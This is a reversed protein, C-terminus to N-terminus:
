ELEEMKCIIDEYSVTLWECRDCCKTMMDCDGCCIDRDVPCKAEEDDTHESCYYEGSDIEQKRLKCEGKMEDIIKRRMNVIGYAERISKLHDRMDKAGWSDLLGINISRYKEDFMTEENAEVWQWLHRWGCFHYEDRESPGLLANVPGYRLQVHYKFKAFDELVEIGCIDCAYHATEYETVKDCCQCRVEPTDIVKM